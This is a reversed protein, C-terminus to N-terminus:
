RRVDGAERNNVWGHFEGTVPSNGRVFPWYRPVHKLKIVDDHLSFQQQGHLPIIGVKMPSSNKGYIYDNPQVYSNLQKIDQM